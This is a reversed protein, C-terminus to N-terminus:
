QHKMSEEMIQKMIQADIDSDAQSAAPILGVGQIGLMGSSPQLQPQQLQVPQNGKMSEEIARALAAEEDLPFDEHNGEAEGWDEPLENNEDEYVEQM